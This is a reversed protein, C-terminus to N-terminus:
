CSISLLMSNGALGWAIIKGPRSPPLILIPTPAKGSVACIQEHKSTLLPVIQESTCFPSVETAPILAAVFAELPQPPQAVRSLCTILASSTLSPTSTLLWRHSCKAYERRSSASRTRTLCIRVKEAKNFSCPLPRPQSIHLGATPDM